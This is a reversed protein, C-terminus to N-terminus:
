KPQQNLIKEAQAISSLMLDAVNLIKTQESKLYAKIQAEDLPAFHEQDIETNKFENMWRMMEDQGKKLAALASLISDKQTAPATELMKQLQRQQSEMLNTKPMVSDHQAVVLTYLSDNAASKLVSVKQPQGACSYCLLSIVLLNYFSFKLM